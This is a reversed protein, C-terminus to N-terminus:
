EVDVADFGFTAPAVDHLTHGGPLADLTPEDVHVM